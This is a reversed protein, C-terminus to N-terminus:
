MSRVRDSGRRSVVLTIQEVSEVVLTDGVAAGAACRAKWREGLLQVRGDPRCPTIVMVPRGIMAERGVAIPIRKTYRFWFVKEAIEWAVAMGVLLLGWPASVLFLAVIIAGVIVLMPSSGLWGQCDCTFDAPHLFVSAALPAAVSLALLLQDRGGVTGASVTWATFFTPLPL